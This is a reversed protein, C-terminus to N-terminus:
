FRCFVVLLGGNCVVCHCRTLSGSTVRQMTPSTTCTPRSARWLDPVSQEGDAATGGAEVVGSHCNWVIKERKSTESRDPLFHFSAERQKSCNLLSVYIIRTWREEEEERRREGWVTQFRQVKKILVVQPWETNMLRSPVDRSDPLSRRPHHFPPPKPPFALTVKEGLSVAVLRHQLFVHQRRRKRGAAECGLENGKWIHGGGCGGGAGWSLARRTKKPQRGESRM